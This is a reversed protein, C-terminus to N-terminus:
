LLESPDKVIELFSTEGKKVVTRIYANPLSARKISIEVAEELKTTDRFYGTWSVSGTTQNVFKGTIKLTKNLGKLELDKHTIPGKQPLYVSIVFQTLEKHKADHLAKLKADDKELFAMLFPYVKSNGPMEAAGPIRRFLHRSALHIIPLGTVTREPLYQWKPKIEGSSKMVEDLMVQALRHASLHASPQDVLNDGKHGNVGVIFYVAEVIQKRNELVQRRFLNKTWDLQHQNGLRTDAIQNQRNGIVAKAIRPAVKMYFYGSVAEPSGYFSGTISFIRFKLPLLQRFAAHQFFFGQTFDKKQAPSNNKALWEVIKPYGGEPSSLHKEFREAAKKINREERFYINKLDLYKDFEERMQISVNRILFADMIEENFDLFEPDKELRDWEEGASRKLDDLRDHFAAVRQLLDWILVSGQSYPIIDLKELHPLGQSARIENEHIILTTLRPLLRLITISREDSTLDAVGTMADAKTDYVVLASPFGNKQM